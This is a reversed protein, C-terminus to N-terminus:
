NYPNIDYEQEEAGTQMNAAVSFWLHIIYEFTTPIAM